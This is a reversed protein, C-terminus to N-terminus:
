HFIAIASLILSLGALLYSVNVALQSAKGGAIDVASKIESYQELHNDFERRTVLQGIDISLKKIDDVVRQHCVEFERRTFYTERSDSIQQRFENMLNLRHTLQVETKELSLELLRKAEIVEKESVTFRFDVYEKMSVTLEDLIRGETRSLRHGNVMVGNEENKSVM